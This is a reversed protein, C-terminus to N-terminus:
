ANGTPFRSRGGAIGKRMFFTNAGAPRAPPESTDNGEHERYLMDLLKHERVKLM